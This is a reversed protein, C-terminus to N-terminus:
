AAVDIDSAGRFSGYNEVLLSNFGRSPDSSGGADAAATIGLDPEVPLPQAPLCLEAENAV